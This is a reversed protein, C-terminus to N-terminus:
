QSWRRRARRRTRRNRGTRAASGRRDSARRAPRRARGRAPARHGAAAARASGVVVPQRQQPQGLLDALDGLPELPERAPEAHRGAHEFASLTKWKSLGCRSKAAGGIRVCRRDARARRQGIRPQDPPDDALPLQARPEEIGRQEGIRRPVHQEVEGGRAGLVLADRDGRQADGAAHRRGGRQPPDPLQGRGAQELPDLVLGVAAAREDRQAVLRGIRHRAVEGLEPSAARLQDLLQESGLGVRARTELEALRRDLYAQEDATENLRAYAAELRALDEYEVQLQARAATSLRNSTLARSIADLRQRPTLAAYATDGLRADLADLRTDLDAVSPPASCATACIAPRSAPWPPTTPRSAGHGARAHHATRRAGRRRPADFEAQGAAVEATTVTGADAYARDALVQTLDGYRDALTTREATTFRQDAGYRAELQVLEYYDSKLRTGTAQNLAGTSVETDVRSEFQARQNALPTQGAAWQSEISTTVGLRDGFLAGFIDAIPNRQTTSTSTQALASGATLALAAAGTLALIKKM